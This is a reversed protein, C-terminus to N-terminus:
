APVMPRLPMAIVDLTEIFGIRRNTRAHTHEKNGIAANNSKVEGCSIDPITLRSYFGGATSRSQATKNEVEKSNM